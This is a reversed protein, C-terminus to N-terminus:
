FIFLYKREGGIKIIKKREKERKKKRRVKVRENREEIWLASERERTRRTPSSRRLPPTALPPPEPALDMPSAAAGAGQRVRAARANERAGGHNGNKEKQALTLCM